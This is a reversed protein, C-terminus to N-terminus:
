NKKQTDLYDVIAWIGGAIFMLMQLQYIQWSPAGKHMEGIVLVGGITVLLWIMYRMIKGTAFSYNLLVQAVM